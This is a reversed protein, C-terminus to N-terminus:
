SDKALVAHLHDQSSNSFCVESVLLFAHDEDPSRLAGNGPEHRTARLWGRLAPAREKLVVEGVEDGNVAEDHRSRGEPHEVHKPDQKMMASSDNVEVYGIGGGGSARRLLDDFRKGIVRFLDSRARAVIQSGAAGDVHAGIWSPPGRWM